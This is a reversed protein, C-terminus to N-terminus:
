SIEWGIDPLQEYYATTLM